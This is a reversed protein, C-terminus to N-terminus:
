IKIKIRVLTKNNYIKVSSWNPYDRIFDYSKKTLELDGDLYFRNCLTEHVGEFGCLENGEKYYKLVGLETDTLYEM